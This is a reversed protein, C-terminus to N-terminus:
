SAKKAELSLKALLLAQRATRAWNGSADITLYAELWRTAEEYEEMELVLMGLNYLPDGFNPDALIAREYARRAETPRGQRGYACGINYWADAFGPQATAAKHLFAIGEADRGRECLLSGLDFMIEADRPLAALARRLSREAEEFDNRGRAEAAAALLPEVDAAAPTLGLRLQGNLEAMGRSLRMVMRGAEDEELKVESLPSALRLEDRLRQCAAALEALETGDALLRGAVSAAKVAPFGFRGEEGEIVDFLILLRLTEAPLKAQLALEAFGYPRNEAPLRKLLGLRRFFSRESELPRGRSLEEAVVERLRSLRGLAGFGVVVLDADARSRTLEGGQQVLHREWQRRPFRSLRGFTFVRM